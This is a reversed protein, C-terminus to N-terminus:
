IRYLGLRALGNLGNQGNLENALPCSIKTEKDVFLCVVLNQNCSPFITFPNFSIEQAETKRIIKQYFKLFGWKKFANKFKKITKSKGQL